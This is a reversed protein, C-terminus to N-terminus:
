RKSRFTITPIFSNVVAIREPYSHIRASPDNDSIKLSRKSKSNYFVEFCLVSNKAGKQM